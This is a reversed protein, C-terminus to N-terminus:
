WRPAATYETESAQSMQSAQKEMEVGTNGMGGGAMQQMHAFPMAFVPKGDQGLTSPTYPRSTPFHTTSPSHNTQQYPSSVHRRYPHHFNPHPLQASPPYSPGASNQAKELVATGDSKIGVVGEFYGDEHSSGNDPNGRLDAGSMGQELGLPEELPAAVAISRASSQAALENPTVLIQQDSSQRPPLSTLPPPASPHGYGM